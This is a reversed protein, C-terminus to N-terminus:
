TSTKKIKGLINIKDTESYYMDTSQFEVPSSFSTKQSYKKSLGLLVKEIDSSKLDIYILVEYIKNSYYCRTNLNNIKKIPSGVILKVTKGAQQLSGIVDQDVQAQSVFPSTDSGCSYTTVAQTTDTNNKSILREFGHYFINFKSKNKIQNKIVNTGYQDQMYTRNGIREFSAQIIQASAQDSFLKKDANFFVSNFIEKHNTTVKKAINYQLGYAANSYLDNYLDINSPPNENWISLKNSSTADIISVSSGVPFIVQNPPVNNSKEVNFTYINTTGNKATIKAEVGYYGSPHSIYVMDGVDILTDFFGGTPNATTANINIVGTNYTAYGSVLDTQAVYFVFVSTNVDSFNIAKQLYYADEITSSNRLELYYKNLNLESDLTPTLPDGYPDTILTFSGVTSGNSLSTASSVGGTYLDSFPLIQSANYINLNDYPSYEGINFDCQNSADTKFDIAYGCDNETKIETTSYYNSIQSSDLTLESSVINAEALIVKPKFSKEGFSGGQGGQLIVLSSFPNKQSKDDKEQQTLEALIEKEVVLNQSEIFPM